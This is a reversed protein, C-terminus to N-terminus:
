LAPENEAFVWHLIRKHLRLRAEAQRVLWAAPSALVHRDVRISEMPMGSFLLRADHAAGAMLEQDICWVEREEITMDARSGAFIYNADAAAERASAVVTVRANQEALARVSSADRPLCIRLSFPFHAMAEILSYLTGNACGIWAASVGDLEKTKRLMCVVDALAAAPQSEPSGANIVPFPMDAIETDWAHIPLDYTYLCDAYYDFLPLVQRRYREIDERWGGDPGEYLIYGGMQRVAGTLCLRIALSPRAFLMVATRGVMFDTRTKADPIGAAQRVLLRCTDKDLDRIRLFHRKM